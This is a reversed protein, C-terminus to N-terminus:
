VIEANDEALKRGEIMISAIIAFIVAIFAMIIQHSSISISLARQGPPNNMTLVISLLAVTITTLLANAFLTLSFARIHRVNADTFFITQRFLAFLAQLRLLGYIAVAVPILSCLFGLMLNILGIHELQIPIAYQQTIPAAFREFDLWVWAAFLPMAIIAATCLWQMFRSLQQIQQVNQM